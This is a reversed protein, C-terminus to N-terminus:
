YQRWRPRTEQARQWVELPSAGYGYPKRPELPRDLLRNIAYGVLLFLIVWWM